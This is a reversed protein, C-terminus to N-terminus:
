YANIASILVRLRLFGFDGVLFFLKKGLFFPLWISLVIVARFRLVLPDQNKLCLECVWCGCLFMCDM